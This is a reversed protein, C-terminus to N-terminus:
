HATRHVDQTGDNSFEIGYFLVGFFTYVLFTLLTPLDVATIVVM